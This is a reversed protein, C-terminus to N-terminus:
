VVFYKPFNEHIICVSMKSNIGAINVEVKANTRSKIPEYQSLKRVKKM